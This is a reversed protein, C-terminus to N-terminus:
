ETSSCILMNGPANYNIIKHVFYFEVTLETVSLGISFGVTTLENLSIIEYVM